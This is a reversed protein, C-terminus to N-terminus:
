RKRVESDLIEELREEPYSLLRGFEMAIARREDKREQEGGGNEVYVALARAKLAQYAAITEEEKYFLFLFKGECAERPFLDTLILSDEEFAKVQYRRCLKQVELLFEDREEKKDWTHSLALTKLGTGVMECFSDMVGLHYSYPDIERRKEESSELMEYEDRDLSLPIGSASIVNVGGYWTSDINFIDGVQYEISFPDNKKIIRISQTKM